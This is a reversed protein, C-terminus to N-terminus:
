LGLYQRVLGLVVAVFVACILWKLWKIDTRIVEMDKQVGGLEDNVRKFHSLFQRWEAKRIWM